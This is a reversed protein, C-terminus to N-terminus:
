LFSLASRLAERGGTEIIEGHTPIVREFDWLLVRDICARLARRDRMTSKALRSSTLRDHAGALKLMLREFGGVPERMNFVLDTLLLTRTKRHLFLTESAFPWGELFIQDLDGKWPGDEGLERANSLSGHKRALGPALHVQADPFARANEELFLHHHRNSAVLHRVPGLAAIAELVGEALTIPCHIWLGGDSLRVITARAGFQIGIRRLPAEAVWLDRDLARFM